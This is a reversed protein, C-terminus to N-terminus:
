KNIEAKPHYKGPKTSNFNLTKRIFYCSDVNNLLISFLGCLGATKMNWKMKLTRPLLALATPTFFAYFTTLSQNLALPLSLVAFMTRNINDRRRSHWRKTGPPPPPPSLLPSVLFSWCLNPQTCLVRYYPEEKRKDWQYKQVPNRIRVRLPSGSGAKWKIRIRIRSKAKICIRIRSRM